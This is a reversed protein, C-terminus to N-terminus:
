AHKRGYRLVEKAGVVFRCYLSSQSLCEDGRSRRGGKSEPRGTFILYRTLHQRWPLSRGSLGTAGGLAPFGAEVVVPPVAVM